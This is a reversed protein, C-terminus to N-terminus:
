PEDGIKVGARLAEGLRFRVQDSQGLRAHLHRPLQLQPAPPLQGHAQRLAGPPTIEVTGQRQQLQVPGAFSPRDFVLAHM